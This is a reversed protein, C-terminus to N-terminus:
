SSPSGKGSRLNRKPRPLNPRHHRRSTCSRSPPCSVPRRPAPPMRQPRRVLLGRLSPRRRPAAHAAVTRRSRHPPVRRPPRTPWSPSRHALPPGNCRPYPPTYGPFPTLLNSPPSTLVPLFRSHPQPSTPTSALFTSHRCSGSGRSVGLPWRHSSRNVGTRGAKAVPGAFPEQSPYPSQSQSASAARQAGRM